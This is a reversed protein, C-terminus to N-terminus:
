RFPCATSVSNQGLKGRWIANAISRDAVDVFGDCDLDCDRFTFSGASGKRWFVNIISRDAVDVIGDNDVDGLLAIGFWEASSGVNGYDDGTVTVKVIYPLGGYDSIGDSIDCGPAAFSCFADGAQGGAVIAPLIDVDFPKYIFEWVCTYSNNDMPDDFIAVSTTLNSTTRGPLNYYMWQNDIEMDVPLIHSSTLRPYDLGELITWVDNAGNITEGVFDWGADTFTNRMQMQATPLGIVNPDTKDGIGVSGPNIDSDWFCKTYIGGSDGGAISCYTHTVSYSNVVKGNNNQGILGGVRGPAGLLNDISYCNSVIGSNEGVLGGVISCSNSGLVWEVIQSGIACCRIITGSSLYGVLSGCIFCCSHSCTCGCSVLFVNPEIVSLDMIMADTDDIFGFLGVEYARYIGDDSECCNFSYSFNSVMHGNGDFVGTFPTNADGIIHFQTGTYASLDIDAMLKFHKDWDCEILGITNFQEATYILYPNNPEGQGGGYWDSSLILKGPLNQWALRPYDVGEDITWIPDCAWAAFTIAIQMEATTKGRSDDCRQPGTYGSGCMSLQGSTQIDWFSDIVFGHNDGVLGGGRSNGQVHGAAYCNSITGEVHLGVLGGVESNGTVDCLSYCNSIIAYEGNYGVLGGIEYNGEVAGCSYSKHVKGEYGNAGVLGGIDLDGYVYTQAHCNSIIGSNYGILGGISHSVGRVIGTVRCDLITGGNSGVLGGIAGYGSVTGGEVYCNSIISWDLDGVLSGVIRRASVNPDILGLNQIQANPDSVYRFLGICYVDNSDYTFNSITHGNGDFVGCFPKNCPDGFDKVYGILNFQTGTYGALDIDAIMKFHKDWDNADLGISNLDDPTAILYPDNPEGNGGSYKGGNLQQSNHPGYLKLIDKTGKFRKDAFARGAAPFKAKTKMKTTTKGTRGHYKALSPSALLLILLMVFCFQTTKGYM